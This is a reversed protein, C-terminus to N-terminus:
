PRRLGHGPDHDRRRDAGAEDIGRFERIGARCRPPSLAFGLEFLRAVRRYYEDGPNFEWLAMRAEEFSTYTFVPMSM